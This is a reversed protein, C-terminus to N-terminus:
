ASGSLKVIAGLARLDEETAEGRVWKTNEEDFRYYVNHKRNPGIVIQAFFRDVGVTHVTGTGIVNDAVATITDGRVPPTTAM